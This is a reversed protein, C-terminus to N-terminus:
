RIPDPLNDRLPWVPTSEFSIGFQTQPIAEGITLLYGRLDVFSKQDVHGDAYGYVDIDKRPPLAKAAYRGYIDANGSHQTTSEDVFVLSQAPANLTSMKINAINRTSWREPFWSPAPPLEIWEATEMYFYNPSFIDDDATGSLPNAGTYKWTDDSKKNFAAAGPDRWIKQPDGGLYPQLAGGSSNWVVRGGGLPTGVPQRTGRPSLSSGNNNYTAAPTTDDHDGVYMMAALVLQRHNSKCSTLYARQKAQGLAPLLLSALIAIIAIVVLLEILTFGQNQGIMRCSRSLRAGTALDDSRSNRNATWRSDRASPTSSNWYVLKM